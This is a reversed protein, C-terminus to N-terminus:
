RPLWLIQRTLVAQDSTLRARYVGASARGGRDLRGNWAARHAGPGFRGAAVTACRRGALDFIELRAERGSPAEFALEVTETAPNPAVVLQLGRGDILPLDIGTAACCDSEIRWWLGNPVVTCWDTLTPTSVATTFFAECNVCATTTGTLAPSVSCGDLGIFRVRVFADGSVCCDTPLTLTHIIGVSGTGVLPHLTPGCLVQTPDPALCGGSAVARVISVEAQAACAAFWRVRFSITRVALTQPEPCAGCSPIRVAFSTFADPEVYRYSTSSIPGSELTCTFATGAMVDFGSAAGALPDDLVTMPPAAVAQTGALASVAALALLVSAHRRIM